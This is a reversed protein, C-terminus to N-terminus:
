PRLRVTLDVSWQSLAGDGAPAAQVALHEITVGPEATLTRLLELGAGWSRTSHDTATLRYRRVELGFRRDSARREARWQPSWTRLRNGFEAATELNARASAAGIEAQQAAEPTADRLIALRQVWDANVEGTAPRLAFERNCLGALGLALLGGISWLGAARRSPHPLTLAM